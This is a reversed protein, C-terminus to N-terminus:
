VPLGIARAQAAHAAGRGTEVLLARGGLLRAPEVDSLRDGVWYSAALDLGLATRADRFLKVGPKRCECPGTIDPHHPCYYAGDLHAGHAALLGVLRRQVADYAAADHLGRAIGSQNSVTLVLWGADNLRRIAQAAGPLLRVEDPEHLYGPPPDDIITGDRDLFVARRRADPM